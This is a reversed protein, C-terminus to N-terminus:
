LRPTPPELGGAAVLCIAFWYRLLSHCLTLLPDLDRQGTFLALSPVVDGGLVLLVVALPEFQLLVAAPVTAVREVPLGPLGAGARSTLCTTPPASWSAANIAAALPPSTAAKSSSTRAVWASM